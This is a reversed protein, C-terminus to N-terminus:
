RHRLKREGFFLLFLFIIRIEEGPAQFCKCSKREVEDLAVGKVVAWFLAFGEVFLEPLGAAESVPEAGVLVHEEGVSGVAFGVVEPGLLRPRADLVRLLAVQEGWEFGDMGEAGLSRAQFLVVILLEVFRVDVDDIQAGVWDFFEGGFAEDGFVAVEVLEVDDDEGRSEVGRGAAHFVHAEAGGGALGEGVGPLGPRPGM